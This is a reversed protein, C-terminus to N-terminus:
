VVCRKSSQAKCVPPLEHLFRVEVVKFVRSLAVDKDTIALLVSYAQGEGGESSVADSGNTVPEEEVPEGGRDISNREQREFEANTITDFKADDILSPRHWSGGHQAFVFTLMANRIHVTVLSHSCQM